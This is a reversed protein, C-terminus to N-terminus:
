NKIHRRMGRVFEPRITYRLCVGVDHLYQLWIRCARCFLLGRRTNSGELPWFHYTNSHAVFMLINDINSDANLGLIVQRKCIWGKIILGRHLGILNATSIYLMLLRIIHRRHFEIKTRHLFVFQAM